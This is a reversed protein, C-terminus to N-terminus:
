WQVISPDAPMLTIFRLGLIMTGMHTATGMEDSGLYYLYAMHFDSDFGM